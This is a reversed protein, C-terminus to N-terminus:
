NLIKFFFYCSTCLKENKEKYIFKTVEKVTKLTTKLSVFIMFESTFNKSFEFNKPDLAFERSSEGKFWGKSM